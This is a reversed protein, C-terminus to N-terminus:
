INKERPDRHCYNDYARGLLVEALLLAGGISSYASGPTFNGETNYHGLGWLIGGFGVAVAVVETVKDVTSRPVKLPDDDGVKVALDELDKNLMRGGLLPPNLYTESVVQNYVIREEHWDFYEPFESRVVVRGSRLKYSGTHLFVKKDEIEEYEELCISVRMRKAKRKSKPQEMPTFRYGLVIPDFILNETEM